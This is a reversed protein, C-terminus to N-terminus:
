NKDEEPPLTVPNDRLDQLANLTNLLLENKETEPTAYYAEPFYHYCRDLIQLGRVFLEYCNEGVQEEPTGAPLDAQGFVNGEKDLYFKYFRMESNIRNCAELIRSKKEKGVKHLIGNVRVQVDNQESQSLFHFRVTPGGTINYGADVFSLNEVDVVRYKINHHDFAETIVEITRQAM